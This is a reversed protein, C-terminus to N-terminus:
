LEDKIIEGGESNLEVEERNERECSPGEDTDQVLPQLERDNPERERQSRSLLKALSTDKNSLRSFGVSLEEGDESDSM